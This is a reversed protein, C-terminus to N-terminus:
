MELLALSKSIHAVQIVDVQPYTQAFRAAFIGDRSKSILVAMPYPSLIKRLLPSLLLQDHWFAVIIPRTANQLLKKVEKEGQIHIRLTWLLLQICARLVKGVIYTVLFSRTLRFFFSHHEKKM